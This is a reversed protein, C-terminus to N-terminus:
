RYESPPSSCRAASTTPRRRNPCVARGRDSSTSLKASEHDKGSTPVDILDIGGLNVGLESAATRVRGPDASVLAIRALGQRTAIAAAQLTRPEDAEPLAIRRPKKRAEDRIRQLVSM